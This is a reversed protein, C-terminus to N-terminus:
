KKMRGSMKNVFTKVINKEQENMGLKWMSICYIATYVCILLLYFSFSHFAIYRKIFVGAIVSPIMAPVFSLINKWFAGMNLGIKKHYYINMIICNGIILSIATGFASGVPGYKKTLPISVMVNCLAVCLYIVSRFQHMNKARQIEIGLNQILPITVPIILLLIVPYAEAYTNGVWIAIFYEGFIVFGSLLLLMVIFQIRGVKTFLNTLVKDTDKADKAVIQNVRPEFVSSITTSFGLYLSNFQSAIGYVAVAGTGSFRILLFKDISWNVQDIIMNLFVFFSFHMIDKLISFEMKKFIFKTHLKFFCYGINILLNLLTLGTTVCVVAVSKYGALLLPLVLLPNLIRSLLNVTRQFIYNEHAVIISNFVGAPFTLVINIILIFMLIKATRLEDINIKNGLVIQANNVLFMGAIFACLALFLFVVLFMGNLGYIKEQENKEKYRSYYRLYASGFGLSFLSLYNVISAVVTYLGYESQGLLSTLLPTYIINILIGVITSIYSIIVGAKLQSSKKM